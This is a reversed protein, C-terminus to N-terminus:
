LQGIYHWCIEGLVLYNPDSTKMTNHRPSYKKSEQCFTHNEEPNSPDNNITSISGKITNTINYTVKKSFDEVSMQGQHFVRLNFNKLFFNINAEKPNFFCFIDKIKLVDVIYKWNDPKVYRYDMFFVNM